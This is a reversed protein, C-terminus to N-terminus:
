RVTTMSAADNSGVTVHPVVGACDTGTVPRTGSGSVNASGTSRADATRASSYMSKSGPMAMSSMASSVTNMPDHVFPRM